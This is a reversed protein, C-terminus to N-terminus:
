DLTLSAFIQMAAAVFDKLGQIFDSQCFTGNM